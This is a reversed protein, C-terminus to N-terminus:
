KESGTRLFPIKFKKKYPLFNTINLQKKKEGKKSKNKLTKFIEQFKINIKLFTIEENSFM